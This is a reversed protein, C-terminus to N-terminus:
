PCRYRVLQLTPVLSFTIEQGRINLPYIIGRVLNIVVWQITHDIKNISIWQIAIEGTSLTTWGKFSQPWFRREQASPSCGLCPNTPCLAALGESLFGGPRNLNFHGDINRFRKLFMPFVLFRQRWTSRCLFSQNYTLWDFQLMEMRIITSNTLSSPALWIRSSVIPCNTHICIFYKISM